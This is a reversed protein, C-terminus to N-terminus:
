GADPRNKVEKPKAGIGTKYVSLMMYKLNMFMIKLDFPPKPINCFHRYFRFHQISKFRPNASYFVALFRPNQKKGKNGVRLTNWYGKDDYLAIEKITLYDGKYM